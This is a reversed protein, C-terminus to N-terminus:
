NYISEIEKAYKELVLKKKVKFTPTLLGNEITFEEDILFFKKPAEHSALDKTQEKLESSVVDRLEKNENLNSSLEIKPYTKKFGPRDITLLVICYPKADGVLVAQSLIESKLIEAQVIEPAVNKGYSTVIIDKKRGVIKLYGDGDVSGLDGTHFWGSKDFVEETAKVRKYYGLAINPGRFCIEDDEMIKLEIDSDLVPGVTGIRNNSPPNVNTAVCTETLGYGQIIKIDLSEFFNAVDDSLKAGGSICFNFNPGFLQTSIQDRIVNTASYAIQQLITLNPAKSNELNAKFNAKAAWLTLKLIKAKLKKGKSKAIIGAQMKELIRPVIPVANASAMRLDLLMTEPRLKSSKTDAISAFVGIKSTCFSLNGMLKAFSHALPLFIMISVVDSIIGSKIVQRANALHNGHSQMVGKPPGTTGSTYVLSALDNRILEKYGLIEEIEEKKGNLEEILESFSVVLPHEEVEEFAIIKKLELKFDQAEREETEPIPVSNETLFLLKDVQEQNEAFVYDAESDFLIYAIDDAPLSQYVSVSVAAVSSIAFDAELWEARSQSIIAVKSGPEVGYLKLKYALSIVRSSVESYTRSLWEKNGESNIACYKYVPLHPKLKAVKYFADALSDCTDLDVHM